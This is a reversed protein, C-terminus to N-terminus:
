SELRRIYDDHWKSKVLFKDQFFDEAKKINKMEWYPIAYLPIKHALAYGYKQRDHEQQNLLQARGRINKFHYEGNIELIAPAGHLNPLYFDYRYKGGRLDLFTKERIFDIHSKKLLLITQSEYKSTRM